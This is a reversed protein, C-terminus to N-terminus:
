DAALLLDKDVSLAGQQEAIRESQFMLGVM